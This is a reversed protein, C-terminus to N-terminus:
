RRASVSSGSVPSSGCFSTRSRSRSMAGVPSHVSVTTTIARSATASGHRSCTCAFNRSTPKAGTPRAGPSRPRVPIIAPVSLPPWTVDVRVRRHEVPGHLKGLRDFRSMESTSGTNSACWRRAASRWEPNASSSDRRRRERCLRRPRARRRIMAATSAPRWRPSRCRPSRACSDAARASRAAPGRRAPDLRRRRGGTARPRPAAPVSGANGTERRCRGTGPASRGRACSGPSRRPSAARPSDPPAPPIECRLSSRACPTRRADAVNRDSRGIRSEGVELGALQLNVDARAAIGRVRECEQPCRREIGRRLVCKGADLGLSRHLGLHIQEQRELIEHVPAHQHVSVQVAHREIAGPRGAVAVSKFPSKSMSPACTTWASTRPRTKPPVNWICARAGRLRGGVRVWSSNRPVNLPSAKRAASASGAPMTSRRAFRNAPTSFIAGSGLRSRLKRTLLM